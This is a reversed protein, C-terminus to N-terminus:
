LTIGILPGPYILQRTYSTVVKVVSEQEDKLISPQMCAWAALTAGYKCSVVRGTGFYHAAIRRDFGNGLGTSLLPM